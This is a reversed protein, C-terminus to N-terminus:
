QRDHQDFLQNYGNDAGGCLFDREVFIRFPLRLFLFFQEM